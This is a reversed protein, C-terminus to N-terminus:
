GHSQQKKMFEETAKVLTAYRDKIQLDRANQDHEQSKLQERVIENAKADMLVQSERVALEETKEYVAAHFSAWKATLEENSKKLRKEEAWVGQEKKKIADERDALLEATEMQGEVAERLNDEQDKLNKERSVIAEERIAVTAIRQRAEIELEEIPKMARERRKELDNVKLQLDAVIANFRKEDFDFDRAIRDKEKRETDRLTNVRAVLDSEEEALGWVRRQIEEATSNRDKEIQQPTLLTLM